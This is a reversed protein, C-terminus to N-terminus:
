FYKMTVILGELQQDGHACFCAKFKKVTGNPFRKCKSVWTGNNLNMGNECEVGDWAGMGELTDSEKEAVKWYDDAFPGNM